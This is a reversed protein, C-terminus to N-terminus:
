TLLTHGPLNVENRGTFASEDTWGRAVLPSLPNKNTNSKGFKEVFKRGKRETPIEKKREKKRGEKRGRHIMEEM